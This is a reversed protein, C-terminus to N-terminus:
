LDGTISRLKAGLEQVQLRRSRALIAGAAMMIILAAIGAGTQVARLQPSVGNAPSSGGIGALTMAIYGAIAGCPVGAYLGRAVFLDSKARAIMSKLLSVTDLTLADFRNCQARRHFVLGTVLGLTWIGSLIGHSTVRGTAEEFILLIGIGCLIGLVTRNLRRHLRNLRQLEQLLHGTDPKPITQWLAILPDQPPLSTM